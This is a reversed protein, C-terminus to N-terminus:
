YVDRHYRHQDKLTQVFEAAAEATMNGQQEVIKHLTHHVDKAMRSADGCVYIGAGEQLWNWFLAAHELMKDQVYIKHAQDRSFATDLRTLHGDALMSELEERYLFDTAASREGFFLWNRGSHGLMRREHLFSRFPAIGTGPGIMIIPTSSDSPLRFKKNQQIYVPVREGVPIRDGLLTSCVGGRDRDCTRYRVVAVTTHVEGSHAAPSSSISYLRPTLRPLLAVVESPEKIVGPYELLLDIFERGYTYDELHATQDPILLRQLPECQGKTSYATILKRSLKTITLHHLLAERLPLLGVKSVEVPEEGTFSLLRLIDDVLHPNNQAVVGLADGSEYRLSSEALSFALHLTQKSSVERTLPRKDILPSLYPNDRTHAAVPAAASPKGHGNSSDGNLAPPSSALTQALVLMQELGPRQQPGPKPGPALLDLEQLLSTKFKAFPQDVDVDCDVRPCIRTAGLSELRADLDKGFGCFHEYHSDGLALVAYSLNQLYPLHQLCLEEYFPQVNDPPDGDGYTSVILVAYKKSALEAPVYGELSSLIAAHGKAKLEKVLKKALGEATGSQSGYLVAIELTAAAASYLPAAPAFMGAILGNLWARQAPTFPANEPILPISRAQTV